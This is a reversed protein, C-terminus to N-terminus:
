FGARLGLTFTRPLPVGRSDVGFAVNAQRNTNIEPDAGSYGTIIAANNVSAFVRLATMNLKQKVNPFLYALMIEQVRLYDASELWRTSTQTTINDRLFLKPTITNTNTPTWRGKIEEINNQFFNTMM